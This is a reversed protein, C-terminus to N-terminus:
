NEERLAENKRESEILMELLESRRLKRLERGTM